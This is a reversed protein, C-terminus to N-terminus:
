TYNVNKYYEYLTNVSWARMLTLYLKNQMSIEM